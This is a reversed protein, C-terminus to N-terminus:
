YAVDYLERLMKRRPTDCFHSEAEWTQMAPHEKKIAGAVVLVALPTAQDAHFPFLCGYFSNRPTAGAFEISSNAADRTVTDTGFACRFFTNEGKGSAGVKLFRSGAHDASEQDGMGGLHVHSYYNRGEDIWCIQNNGGTDFGHWVSFDHFICGDATAKIMQAFAASGASPAIRARQFMMVSAGVGFLHTGNKSWTMLESLRAFGGAAGNGILTVVDNRGAVCRNHAEPLTILPKQRTVGTASDSGNVPDVYFRNGRGWNLGSITASLAELQPTWIRGRFKEVM